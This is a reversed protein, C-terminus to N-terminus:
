WWATHWWHRCHSAATFEPTQQILPMIFNLPFFLVPSFRDPILATTGEILVMFCIVSTWPQHSSTSKLRLIDFTGLQCFSSLFFLNFNMLHSSLYLVISCHFKTDAQFHIKRFTDTGREYWNSPQNMCNLLVRRLERAFTTCVNCRFQQGIHRNRQWIIQKASRHLEIFCTATIEWVSTYM